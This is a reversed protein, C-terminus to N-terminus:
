HQSYLHVDVSMKEQPNQSNFEPGQVPLVKTAMGDGKVKM